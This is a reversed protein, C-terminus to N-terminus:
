CSGGDWSALYGRQEETLEDIAVGLAALKLAAIERDIRRPVPIVAPALDAGERALFEVSLAQAAFSMDMVSAPHGEASALNVLRGEALLHIRRGDALAFQQVGPRVETASVAMARLGPVDIEVDFHGANALIAGDKMVAVHEPRIVNVDGTATVFLDGVRAADAVPMVEFGDMVAELARMPDVELVIVNAGM